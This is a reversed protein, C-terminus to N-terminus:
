RAPAVGLDALAAAMGRFDAARLVGGAKKQLGLLKKLPLGSSGLLGQAGHFLKAQRRLEVALDGKPPVGQPGFRVSVTEWFAVIGDANWEHNHMASHHAADLAIAHALVDTMWPEEPVLGTTEVLGRSAVLAAMADAPVLSAVEEPTGM